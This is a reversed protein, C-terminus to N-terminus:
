PEVGWGLNTHKSPCLGELRHEDIKPDSHGRGFEFGALFTPCSASWREAPKRLQEHDNLGWFDVLTKPSYRESLRVAIYM